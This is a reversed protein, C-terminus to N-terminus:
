EELYPRRLLINCLRTLMTVELYAEQANSVIGETLFPRPSVVDLGTSRYRKLLAPNWMHEDPLRQEWWKLKGAMEAFGSEPDWPNTDAKSSMVRRSIVGWCHRIQILSAFLSRDCEVIPALNEPARPTFTDDLAARTSPERGDAFDVESGPLLTSIDSAGLTVPSSVGSHLNDYDPLGNNAIQGLLQWSRASESYLM